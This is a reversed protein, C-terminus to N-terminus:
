CSASEQSVSPANGPVLGIRMGIQWLGHAAADAIPAKLAMGFFSAARRYRDCLAADGILQILDSSAFRGGALNARFEEGILLGSLYDSVASAALEGDLMLSRASFLRGLAGQAGSDRAAVVGRDFAQPSSEDVGTGLISHDRLLSFLEGTMLTCFDTVAADTVTAWKSHTGPLIWHSREKLAPQQTLAGVIQTEEGRMVDPGHTQHLGPVIHVDLGDDARVARVGHSLADLDAPLEVYPVELWGLRSGVMGCALRPLAPWGAIIDALAANFGGEPLHRLGWPRTHIDAIQGTADLRYARLSTTGWDLGILGSM